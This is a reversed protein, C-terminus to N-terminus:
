RKNQHDKLQPLIKNILNGQGQGQGQGQLHQNNLVVLSLNNALYHLLTVGDSQVLAHALNKDVQSM